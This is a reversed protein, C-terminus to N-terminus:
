KWEQNIYDASISFQKIPKGKDNLMSNIGSIQPNRFVPSQDLSKLLDAIIYNNYAYADFKLSIKGEGSQTSLAAIWMGQPLTKLINEMFIPYVLRSKMLGEIANKRATLTEQGKKIESIKNIVTQLQALEKEVATIETRINKREVVKSVYIYGFSIAVCALGFIVLLIIEPREEKIQIDKPLLNIKTM